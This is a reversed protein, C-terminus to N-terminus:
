AARPAPSSAQGVNETTRAIAAARANAEDLDRRADLLRAEVDAASMLLNSRRVALAKALTSYAVHAPDKIRTREEEIAIERALNAATSTFERTMTELLEIKRAVIDAVGDVM